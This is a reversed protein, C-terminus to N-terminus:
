TTEPRRGARSVSASGNRATTTVRLEHGLRDAVFAYLSRIQMLDSPAVGTSTFLSAPLYEDCQIVPPEGALRTRRLYIIPSGPEIQLLGALEANAEIQHVEV